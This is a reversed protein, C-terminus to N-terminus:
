ESPTGDGRRSARRIILGVAFCVIGLLVLVGGVRHGNHVAVFVGIGLGLLALGAVLWFAIFSQWRDDITARYDANTLPEKASRQRL